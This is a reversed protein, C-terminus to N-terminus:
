DGLAVRRYARLAPKGQRDVTVLGTYACFVCASRDETDQWSFWTVGAIEWQHRRREYLSYARRLLRAQRAPTKSLQEHDGGSAWGLETIWLPRGAVRARKFEKRAQRVQWQSRKLSPSYPHLALSDFHPRLDRGAFLGRLYPRLDIGGNTEDPTGFLGALIVEAGPDIERIAAASEEVLRAYENPDPRPHWYTGDSPENWIQWRRIPLPAAAPHMAPYQESWFSGNPGYRAVVTRLWGQWAQIDEQRRIPPENEHESIFPPVNLVYPMVEVGAAAAGGVIEDYYSWDCTALSPVGPPVPLSSECQGAEPQVKKWSLQIRMLGIGNARMRAFDEDALGAQSVVGYFSPPPAGQASAPAIAAIAAIAAVAYRAGRM